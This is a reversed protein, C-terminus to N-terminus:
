LAIESAYLFCVFFLKCANVVRGHLGRELFQLIM